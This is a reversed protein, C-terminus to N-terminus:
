KGDSSNVKEKRNVTDPRDEKERHSKEMSVEEKEEAM